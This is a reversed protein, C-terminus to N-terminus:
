YSFVQLFEEASANVVWRGRQEEERLLHLVILMGGSIWNKM